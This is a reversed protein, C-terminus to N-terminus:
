DHAPGVSALIKAAVEPATDAPIVGITRRTSDSLTLTLTHTDDDPFNGTKIWRTGVAVKRPREDWDPPSYLLRDIRPQDDPWLDFLHALQESLQRSRPWWAGDPVDRFRPDGAARPVLVFRSGDKPAM